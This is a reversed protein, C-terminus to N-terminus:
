RSSSPSFGAPYAELRAAVMLVNASAARKAEGFRPEPLSRSGHFLTQSVATATPIM